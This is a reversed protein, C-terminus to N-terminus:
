VSTASYVVPLYINIEVSASLLKGMAPLESKWAIYDVSTASSSKHTNRILKRSILPELSGELM